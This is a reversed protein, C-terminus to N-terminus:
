KKSIIELNLFKFVHTCVSSRFHQPAHAVFTVCQVHWAVKTNPPCTRIVRKKEVWTANRGQKRALVGNVTTGIPSIGYKREVMCVSGCIGGGDRQSYVSPPLIDLQTEAVMQLFDTLCYLWCCASSFASHAQPLMGTLENSVSDRSYTFSFCDQM